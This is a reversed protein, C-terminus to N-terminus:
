LIHAYGTEPEVGITVNGDSNSLTVICPNGSIDNQILRSTVGDRFLDDLLHAGDYLPRGLHDFAIRLSNDKCNDSFDVNTIGYKNGINLENTADDDGYAITGSSYGGTLKKSSNLPNIAMEPVNPVGDYGSGSDIDSFITYSWHKDSGDTKAFFIQWRKKYWESDATSDFKDDVMALHQTYRIHSVLQTAAEYLPNTRTNPIIVAALIGIVVIVFVLEIMTFAKKM